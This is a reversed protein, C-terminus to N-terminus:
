RGTWAARSTELEDAPLSVYGEEPVASIGEDSLYYDVFPALAPNSDAKDANVYIFLPRSIPYSGDAVTESNPEVCGDGGDVQLLKITDSNQEAFHLGVWGLSTDSGAIGTVIDNDRESASYDPQVQPDEVGRAEGIDAIVLDNFSDFTGSRDGPGAITLPVDAYPAHSTGFDTGLEAVLEAALDNADSWNAFGNGDADVSEPGLLAYLDLFSLCDVGDNNVSTVVSLGDFAIKLEIYSVGSEECQAIETDSIARSADSIDADGTCFFDAFGAGTGEGEGGVEYDFDPNMDAFKESINSSIPEVTSSGHISVFGSVAPEGPTADVSAAPTATESPSSAAPTCAALLLVGILAAPFLARQIPSRTM